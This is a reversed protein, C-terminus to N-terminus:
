RLYYLSNIREEEPRYPPDLHVPPLSSTRGNYRDAHEQFATKYDINKIAENVIKRLEDGRPPMGQRTGM